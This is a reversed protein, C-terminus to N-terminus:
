ESIIARPDSRAQIRALGGRAAALVYGATGSPPHPQELVIIVVLAALGFSACALLSANITGRRRSASLHIEGAEIDTSENM